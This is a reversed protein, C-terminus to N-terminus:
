AGGVGALDDFLEAPLVERLADLARRYRVAVTNAPVGLFAGIEQNSRQEMLRMVLVDRKDADLKQLCDGVVSGIDKHVCRTVIGLTEAPLQSVGAGAASADGATGRGAGAKAQRAQRRLFNNCCQLVTTGLYTVLVPALRGARERLEGLHNLTVMWVESALDEVDQVSGHGRLRLRVQAEVFPQFHSVIWAVAEGEGDVARRVFISTNDQAM